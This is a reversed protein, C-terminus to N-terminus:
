AGVEDRQRQHQDGHEGGEAVPVPSERVVPLNKKSGPETQLRRSAKKMASSAEAGFGVGEDDEEEAIQLREPRQAARRHRQGVIGVLPGRDIEEDGGVVLREADHFVGREGRHVDVPGGVLEVDVDEVVALALLEALEGFLGADAVHRAVVVLM